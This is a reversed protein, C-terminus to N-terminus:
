RGAERAVGNERGWRWVKREMAPGVWLWVVATVWAFLTDVVAWGSRPSGHLASARMAHGLFQTAILYEGRELAAVAVAAVEDESQAPDGEELLRTVHPKRAQEAAHGPSLITGPHVIHIAIEPPPPSPSSSHQRAGNYLNVESRLSDALSRLAAKAPSYAAYGALGCFALTSSTIVFHRPLQEPGKGRRKRRSGDAGTRSSSSPEAGAASSSPPDIWAKLTAHALYTAAWYNIEMQGRLTEIPIDLFLGPVATGANAWVVDPPQDSNWYTM